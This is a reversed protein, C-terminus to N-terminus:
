FGGKFKASQENDVSEFDTAIKDLHRSFHQVVEVLGTSVDFVYDIKQHALENGSLQSVMDKEVYATAQLESVISNCKGTFTHVEQINSAIINSSM